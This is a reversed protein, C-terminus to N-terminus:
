RWWRRRSPPGPLSPTAGTVLAAAVQGMTGAPFEVSQHLGPAVVARISCMVRVPRAAAHDSASASPRTPTTACDIAERVEAVRRGRQVSGKGAVRLACCSPKGPRGATHRLMAARESVPCNGTTFAAHARQM